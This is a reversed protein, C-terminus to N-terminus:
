VAHRKQERLARELFTIQKRLDSMLKRYKGRLKRDKKRDEIERKSLKGLYEFKVRPGDRYALYHYVNGKIKKAVLSGKPVKELEESYKELMRQSNELEEALVTRIPNM